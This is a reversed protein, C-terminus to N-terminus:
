TKDRAQFFSVTSASFMFLLILRWFPNLNLAIMIGLVALTIVFQQIAFRLRKKREFPSINAICVDGIGNNKDAAAKLKLDSFYATNITSM